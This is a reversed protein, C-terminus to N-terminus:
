KSGLIGSCAAGMGTATLNFDGSIKNKVEIKTQTPNAAKAGAKPPKPIAQQEVESVSASLLSVRPRDQWYAPEEYRILDSLFASADKMTRSSKM